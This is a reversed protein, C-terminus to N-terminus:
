QRTRFPAVLGHIFELKDVVPQSLVFPYFDLQGMSRTLNNVAVTLPVLANVLQSINDARYPDFDLNTALKPSEGGAAQDHHRVFAATEIADVMHTYHAWCEAFDEWPHCTAYSSIFSLEWGAPRARTTTISSPPM